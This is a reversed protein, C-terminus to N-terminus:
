ESLNALWKLGTKTRALPLKHLDVNRLDVGRLDLGELPRQRMDQWDVPGHGNEHTALLWESDARSQKMGQFPYIGQEIVPAIARRQALETQRQQDIEPETRWPEGQAGWYVKLAEPDSETPHPPLLVPTDEEESM